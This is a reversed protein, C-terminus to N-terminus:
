NPIFRQDSESQSTRTRVQSEAKNKGEWHDFLFDDPIIAEGIDLKRLSTRYCLSMALDGTLIDTYGM